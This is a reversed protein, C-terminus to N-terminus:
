CYTPTDVTCYAEFGTSKEEAFEAKEVTGTIGVIM